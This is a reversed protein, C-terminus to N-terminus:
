RSEDWVADGLANIFEVLEDAMEQHESIRPHGPTAAGNRRYLLHMIRPDGVEQCVQDIAQDWHPDHILLTTALIIVANPYTARLAHLFDAYRKRWHVAQEGHYDTAMFDAPHADNQGLAVMVIQPRYRSFDWASSPGFVPNYRVRDWMSEMGIYNPWNFWGIGDILSVGGQSVTHLQAHLRRAAIAGYSFWSNSYSSLDVDPDPKGTYLLAENREGCTVSDGYIEIRRQSEPEDVALLRAGEDLSFGLLEMYHQGDQRKFIVADHVIDPLNRSLTVEIPEDDREIPVKTQQGDIIVGIQSTEYQRSNILRLGLSTGTFRFHAQTYPFVWVPRTPKTDDIRGMTRIEPANPPIVISRHLPTHM